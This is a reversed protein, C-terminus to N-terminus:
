FHYYFNLARIAGEFKTKWKGRWSWRKKIMNECKPLWLVISYFMFILFTREMFLLHEQRGQSISVPMSKWLIEQSCGQSHDSPSHYAPSVSQGPCWSSASWSSASWSSSWSELWQYHWPITTHCPETKILRYDVHKTM